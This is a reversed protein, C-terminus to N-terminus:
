AEAKLRSRLRDVAARSLLKVDAGAELGAGIAPRLRELEERIRATVAVVIREIVFDADLEAARRSTVPRAGRASQRRSPRASM